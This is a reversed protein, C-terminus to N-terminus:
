SRELKPSVQEFKPQGGGLGDGYGVERALKRNSQEANCDWSRVSWDVPGDEISGISFEGVM